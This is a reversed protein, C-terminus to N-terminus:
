RCRVQERPMRTNLRTLFSGRWDARRINPIGNVQTLVRAASATCVAVQPFYPDVLLYPICM